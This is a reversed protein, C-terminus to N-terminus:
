YGICAIRRRTRSEMRENSTRWARAWYRELPPILYLIGSIRRERSRRAPISVLSLDARSFCPYWKPFPPHVGGWSLLAPSRAFLGVDNVGYPVASVLNPPGGGTPGANHQHALDVVSRLATTTFSVASWPDDRLTQEARFTPINHIYSCPGSTGSRDRHQLTISNSSFM